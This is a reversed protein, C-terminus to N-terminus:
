STNQLSEANSTSGYDDLQCVCCVSMYKYHGDAPVSRHAQAAAAFNICGHMDDGIHMDDSIIRLERALVSKNFYYKNLRTCDIQITM